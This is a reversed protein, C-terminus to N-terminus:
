RAGAVSNQALHLRANSGRAAYPRRPIGHTARLAGADRPTGANVYKIIDVTEISKSTDSILLTRGAISSKGAEDHSTSSDPHRRRHSDSM